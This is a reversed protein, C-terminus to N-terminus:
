FNRNDKPPLFGFRKEEAERKSILVKVPNSAFPPASRKPIVLVVIPFSRHSPKVVQYLAAQLFEPLDIDYMGIFFLLFAGRCAPARFTKM